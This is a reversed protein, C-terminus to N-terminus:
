FLVGLDIRASGYVSSRNAVVYSDANTGGPLNEIAASLQAAYGFSASPGVFFRGWAFRYGGEVQPVFYLSKSVILAPQNEVNAQLLEFIAGVHAGRFGDEFYYRGRLGGGASFAFNDSPGLFLANSVLGPNFWRFSAAGTWRGTGFELAATPGFLLFGAPDLAFSGIYRAPPQAADEAEEDAEAVEPERTEGEDGDGSVSAEQAHAAGFYSSTTILLALPIIQVKSKM